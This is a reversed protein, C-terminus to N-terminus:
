SGHIKVLKIYKHTIIGFFRKNEITQIRYTINEIQLRDETNVDADPLVSVTADINESLKGPPTESIEVPISGISNYEKDDTGYLNEGSIVRFVAARVESETILQRVDAASQEREQRTLLM